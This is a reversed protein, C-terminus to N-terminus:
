ATIMSGNHLLAWHSAVDQAGRYGFVILERRTDIENELKRRLKLMKMKLFKFSHNLWKKFGIPQLKSQDLFAMSDTALWCHQGFAQGWLLNLLGSKALSETRRLSHINLPMESRIIICRRISNRCVIHREDPAHIMVELAERGYTQIWFYGLM